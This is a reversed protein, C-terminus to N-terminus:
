SDGLERTVTQDVGCRRRPLTVCCYCRVGLVSTALVVPPATPAAPAPAAVAVAVGTYHANVRISSRSSCKGRSLWRIM